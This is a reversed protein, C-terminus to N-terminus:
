QAKRTTSGIGRHGVARAIDLVAAAALVMLFADAPARLRTYGVTLVHVATFAALVLLMMALHRRRAPVLLNWLSVLALLALPAYTATYLMSKAQTDGTTRPNLDWSWFAEAKVWLGHAWDGPNARIWAFGRDYWWRDEGAEDLQPSAPADPQETLLDVSIGREIFEAAQPSNGKWFNVGGKTAGPVFADLVVANRVTWPLLVMLAAALAVGSMRVARAPGVGLMLLIVPLLVAVAIITPRVLFALGAVLGVLASSRMSGLQGARVCALVTAVLLLAFVSTDMIQASQAVLYPYVAFAGAAVLGVAVGFLRRGLAFVLLAAVVGILAQLLGVSVWGRGGVLYSFAVLLTYVPPNGASPRGAVSFGNGDAVSRALDDYSQDGSTFFEERLLVAAAVRALFACCAILALWTGAPGAPWWRCAWAFPRVATM